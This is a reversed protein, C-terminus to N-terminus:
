ARADIRMAPDGRAVDIAGNGPPVQEGGRETLV